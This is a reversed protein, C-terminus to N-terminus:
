KPASNLLPVLVANNILIDEQVSIKQIYYALISFRIVPSDNLIISGTKIMNM